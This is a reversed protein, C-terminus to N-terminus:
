RLSNKCAPCEKSDVDIASYCKPCIRIGAIKKPQEEKQQLRGSVSGTTKERQVAAIERAPERVIEVAKKRLIKNVQFILVLLEAFILCASVNLIVLLTGIEM